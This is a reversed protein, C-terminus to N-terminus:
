FIRPAKTDVGRGTSPPSHDGRRHRGSCKLRTPTQMPTGPTRHPAARHGASSGIASESLILSPRIPACSRHTARQPHRNGSHLAKRQLALKANSRPGNSQPGVQDAERGRSAYWAAPPAGAWKRATRRPPWGRWPAGRYAGCPHPDWRRCSQSRGLEAAAGLKHNTTQQVGHQSVEALRIPGMLRQFTGRTPLRRCCPAYTASHVTSGSIAFVGMRRYARRAAHRTAADTSALVASLLSTTQRHM